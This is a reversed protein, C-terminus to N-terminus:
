VSPIEIAALRLRRPSEATVDVWALYLRDELRLLRPFGSSRGGDTQAVVRPPGSHGESSWRQLRIAARDEARALWVVWFGGDAASVVDVRGFPGAEDVVVPQSWTEGANDSFAVQVRPREDAVTFWAVAARDGATAIAPGNVPCGPILWGDVAVERPATWGGGARRVVAIDRVEDELRDRYVVVPGSPTLAASTACCECVREDLMEGPGATDGILATRLTMPKGDAMERGDLWFARVGDGEAVYSVFGHETPTQDDNLRGLQRWTAGGDESRALFISYAYIEDSTKALWHALLSGDGAEVVAPFDAWNAFFDDGEAVVVPPTWGDEVLRSVLLRHSRGDGKEEPELWSMLLRGDAAVLDPGLSNPAAPPDLFRVEGSLIEPLAEGAIGEEAPETGCASLIVAAVLVVGGRHLRGGERAWRGSM